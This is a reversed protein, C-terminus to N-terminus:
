IYLVQRKYVYLHTYSVPVSPRLVNFNETVASFAEFSKGLRTILIDLLQNYTAVKFGKKMTEMKKM